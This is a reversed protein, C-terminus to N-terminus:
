RKEAYSNSNEGNGRTASSISTQGALLDDLFPTTSISLPEAHLTEHSAGNEKRWELFALREAAQLLAHKQWEVAGADVIILQALEDDV